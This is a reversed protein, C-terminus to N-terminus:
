PTPYIDVVAFAFLLNGEPIVSLFALAVAFAPASTPAFLLNGEPIVSLFALAFAFAPASTPELLLNGEPIVSLFALAFAPQCKHTGV